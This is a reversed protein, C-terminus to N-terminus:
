GEGRDRWALEVAQRFSAAAEDWRGQAAAIEGKEALVRPNRPDLELAADIAKAAEDHRGLARLSRAKVVLAPTYAPEIALAEEAVALAEDHKERAELVEALLGLTQLHKPQIERAERLVAEAKEIFAPNKRSEEVYIRALLVRPDAWKPDLEAAKELDRVAKRAMGRQILVQAKQYHLTAKKPPVYDRKKVAVRASAEPAIGLLADVAEKLDTKTATSYSAFAYRVTGSDDLLAVSPTAVVGYAYYTALGEDVVVPFPLGKAAQEVAARTEADLHEHDVNVAVVEFGKDHREAYVKALDELLEKSRPSWTAWFVVALAKAGVKDALRIESGDLTKLTFEPAKQGVEVYKFAAAAPAVALLVLFGLFVGFRRGAM